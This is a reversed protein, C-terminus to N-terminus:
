KTLDSFLMSREDDNLCHEIINHVVNLKANSNMQAFAQSLNFAELKLNHQNIYAICVKPALIWNRWQPPKLEQDRYISPSVCVMREINPHINDCNERDDICNHQHARQLEAQREEYKRIQEDNEPTWSM